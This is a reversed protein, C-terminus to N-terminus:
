TVDEVARKMAMLNGDPADSPFACGPGAIFRKPGAMRIAEKVESIINSPMGYAITKTEDVGGIICGKYKMRGQALTPATIRSSWNIAATPYDLFLDFMINTGHIHMINFPANQVAKLVKLDNPKGFKLYDAESMQDRSCGQAALFIGEIGADICAKSFTGLSEAIVGLGQSVASPDEKLHEYMGKGALKEGVALPNFITTVMMAERGIEKKIIKLGEIQGAFNPSTPKLPELKKWDAAKEIKEMGKPPPYPNDDMVKLFDVDYKRYFGLEAQAMKQGSRQDKPFHYWFGFPIRDPKEGKLAAQVREIKNM